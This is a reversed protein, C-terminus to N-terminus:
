VLLDKMFKNSSLLCNLFITPNKENKLTFITLKVTYIQLEILFSPNDKWLCEGYSFAYMQFKKRNCTGQVAQPSDQAGCCLSGELSLTLFVLM